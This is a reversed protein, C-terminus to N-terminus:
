ESGPRLYSGLMNGERAYIAAAIITPQTRLGQLLENAAKEDGFTLAATSHEGIIEALLRLNGDMSEPLRVFENTLLVASALLLAAAVTMMIIAQLKQKLSLKRLLGM